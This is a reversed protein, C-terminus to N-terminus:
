ISMPLGNTIKTSLEYMHHNIAMVKTRYQHIELSGGYQNMEYKSPSALIERVKSDNFMKYLFKLMDRKRVNDCIKPYHVNIHAMACSFTCFCGETGITYGGGSPEILRPIFVPISEFNLDCFWCKTNIKKIWTNLTTFISPIKDFEMVSIEEEDLRDILQQEFIDDIPICDKLFVGRIFLIKPVKFEKIYEMNINNFFIEKIISEFKINLSNIYM